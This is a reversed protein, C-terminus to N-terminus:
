RQWVRQKAIKRIIEYDGNEVYYDMVYLKNNSQTGAFPGTLVRNNGNYKKYPYQGVPMYYKEIVKWTLPGHATHGEDQRDFESPASFM